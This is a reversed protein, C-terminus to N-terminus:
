FEARTGEDQLDSDAKKGIWTSADEDVSVPLISSTVFFPKIRRKGTSIDASEKHPIM